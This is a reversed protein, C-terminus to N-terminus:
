KNKYGDKCTPSKLVAEKQTQWEQSTYLHLSLAHLGIKFENSLMQNVLRHRNVRTSDNFTASVAIVKFHTEADKPVHHFQSEDEVSLFEPMLEAKLKQEIREKRSM